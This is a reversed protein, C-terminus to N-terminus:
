THSEICPERVSVSGFMMAQHGNRDIVANHPTFKQFRASSRSFTPQEKKEAVASLEYKVAAFTGFPVLGVQQLTLSQNSAAPVVMM